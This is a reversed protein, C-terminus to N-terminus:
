GLTNEITPPVLERGFTVAHNANEAVVTLPM